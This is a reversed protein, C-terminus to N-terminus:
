GTPAACPRHPLFVRELTELEMYVFYKDGRAPGIIYKGEKKMGDRGDLRDWGLGLRKKWVYFGDQDQKGFKPKHKRGGMRLNMIYM